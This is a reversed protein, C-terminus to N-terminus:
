GCWSAPPWGCRAPIEITGSAFGIILMRGEWNICRLAQAFIEGGVPDYIVDAGGTLAKVRDRLNERSYDIGHDAGHDRAVALKDASSAAAIVTAGMAKGIEVATLGVGGAAGLVLLTEGPRLRARHALAIQSTGYAVPFGAAADTTLTGERPRASPTSPARASLGSCHCPAPLLDTRAIPSQSAGAVMASAM